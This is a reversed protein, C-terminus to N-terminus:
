TECDWFAHGNYGATLGGPSIGYPRDSRISSLIAYLSTNAARSVDARDIEFGSTWVTSAWEDVHRTHLTGNAAMSSATTFDLTLASLLMDAPTELSTRVITFFATISGSTVPWLGHLTSPCTLNSSLIGVATLNSTNTEAVRTWGHSAIYPAGPPVVAATFNIDPSPRGAPTVLKLYAQLPATDSADATLLEVEMVLLSGLERHAYFRQEIYVRTTSTTCSVASDSACNATPELYSRRYYTAERIDLAADASVAGTPAPVAIAGLAAPVVARHSPDKTLYGNFVGSIFLTDSMVQTAVFGNGIMPMNNSSISTDSPSWLMDSATIRPQWSPPPAAVAKPSTSFASAATAGFLLSYRMENALSDRPACLAYNISRLYALGQQCKAAM